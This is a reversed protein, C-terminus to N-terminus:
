RDSLCMIGESEEKEQEPDWNGGHVYEAGWDKHGSIAYDLEQKLEECEAHSLTLVIKDYETKEDPDLADWMESLQWVVRPWDGTLSGCVQVVFM